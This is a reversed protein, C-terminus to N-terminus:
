RTRRQEDPGRPAQANRLFARGRCTTRTVRGEDILREAVSWGAGARALYARADPEPMPHVALIGLLGQAGLSWGLLRSRVPGFAISGPAPTHRPRDVAASLGTM